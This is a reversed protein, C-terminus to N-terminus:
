AFRNPPLRYREVLLRKEDEPLSRMYTRWGPCFNAHWRWLRGMLSRPREDHKARWGCSACGTESM